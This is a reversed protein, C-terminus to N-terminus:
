NFDNRKKKRDLPASDSKQKGFFAKKKRQDKKQKEQSRGFDIVELQKLSGKWKQVPKLGPSKRNGQPFKRLRQQSIRASIQSYECVM